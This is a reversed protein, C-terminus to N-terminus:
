RPAKEVRGTSQLHGPLNAVDRTPRLNDDGLDGSLCLGRRLSCPGRGATRIGCGPGRTRASGLPQYAADHRRACNCPDEAPKYLGRRPRAVEEAGRAPCEQGIALLGIPREPPTVKGRELRDEIENM